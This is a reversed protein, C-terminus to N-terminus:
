DEDAIVRFRRAEFSPLRNLLKGYLHLHFTAQGGVVDTSHISEEDLYLYDGTGVDTTQDCYVERKGPSVPRYLTNSEIGALGVILAWTKHHHPASTVGPGDSVLYLAPGENGVQALLWLREEHKDAPHIQLADWNLDKGLNALSKALM